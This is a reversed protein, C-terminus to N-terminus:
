KYMDSASACLKGTHAETPTHAHHTPERVANAIDPRSNKQMNDAIRIVDVTSLFLHFLYRCVLPNQEKKTRKRALIGLVKVFTGEHFYWM